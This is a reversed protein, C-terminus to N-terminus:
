THEKLLPPQHQINLASHALHSIHEVLAQETNTPALAKREELSCLAYRVVLFIISQLGLRLQTPSLNPFLPALQSLFPFLYASRKNPDFHGKELIDRYILRLAGRHSCAFNYAQEVLRHLTQSHSSPNQLSLILQPKFSALEKYMSEICLDYLGQKGGFYHSILAVNVCSKKAIDRVSVGELGHQSFLTQAQILINEKTEEATRNAKRAM